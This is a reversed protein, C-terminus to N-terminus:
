REIFFVKKCEPCGCIDLYGYPNIPNKVIKPEIVKNKEIYYPIVEKNCHPCKTPKSRDTSIIRVM